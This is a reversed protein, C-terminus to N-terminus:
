RLESFSLFRKLVSLFPRVNVHQFNVCVSLRPFSLRLASVSVAVLRLFGVIIVRALRARQFPISLPFQFTYLNAFSMHAEKPRPSMLFPFPM